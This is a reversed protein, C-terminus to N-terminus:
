FVFVKKAGSEKGKEDTLKVLYLGPVMKSIDLAAMKELIIKSFVVNGLADIFEVTTPSAM